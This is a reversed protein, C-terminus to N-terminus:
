RDQKRRVWRLTNRGVARTEARMKKVREYLDDAVRVMEPLVLFSLHSVEM